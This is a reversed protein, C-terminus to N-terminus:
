QIVSITRVNEKLTNLFGNQSSFSCFVGKNELAGDLGWLPSTIDSGWLNYSAPLLGEWSGDWSRLACGSGWKELAEM